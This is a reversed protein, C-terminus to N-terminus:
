QGPPAALRPSSGPAPNRGALTREGGALALRSDIEHPTETPLPRGQAELVDGDQLLLWEARLDQELTLGYVPLPRLPLLLAEKLRLDIGDGWRVSQKLGGDFSAQLDLDSLSALPGATNRWRELPRSRLWPGALVAREHDVDQEDLKLWAGEGSLRLGWRPDPSWSWAALYHRRFLDREQWESWDSGFRAELLHHELPRVSLRENVLWHVRGAQWRRQLEGQQRGQWPLAGALEVGVQNRALDFDLSDELGYGLTEGFARLRLGGPLTGRLEGQLFRTDQPDGNRYARRNGGTLDLEGLYDNQWQLGVTTVWDRLRLSDDMFRNAERWGHRSGLRLGLTESARWALDLRAEPTLIRQEYRTNGAFTGGLLLNWRLTRNGNLGRAGVLLRGTHLGLREDTVGHGLRPDEGGPNSFTSRWELSGQPQFGPGSAVRPLLRLLRSGSEAGPDALVSGDQASAVLAMALLPTLAHVLPRSRMAPSRREPDDCPGAHGARPSLGVPPPRGEARRRYGVPRAGPRAGAAATDGGPHRSHPVAPSGGPQIRAAGGEGAQSLVLHGDGDLCLSRPLRLKGILPQAARPVLRADLVTVTGALADLLFLGGQGDGCADVPGRLPQDGLARTLVSMRGDEEFRALSGSAEGIVLAGDPLWLLLSPRQWGDPLTLQRRETGLPDRIWVRAPDPLALALRDGAPSVALVTPAPQDQLHLSRTWGSGQLQWHEVGRGAPRSCWFGTSGPRPEAGLALIPQDQGSVAEPGALLDLWRRAGEPRLGTRVPPAATYVTDGHALVISTQRDLPLRGPTSCGAFLLGIALLLPLGRM